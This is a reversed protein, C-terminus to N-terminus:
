RKGIYGVVGMQRTRSGGCENLTGQKLLDDKVRSHDKLTEFWKRTIRWDNKM